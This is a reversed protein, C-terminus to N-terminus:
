NRKEEDGDIFFDDVIKRKGIDSIKKIADMMKDLLESGKVGNYSRDLRLNQFYLRLWRYVEIAM